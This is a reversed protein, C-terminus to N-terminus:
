LLEALGRERDLRFNPHRAVLQGRGTLSRGPQLLLYGLAGRGRGIEFFDPPPELRKRRKPGFRLLQSPLRFRPSKLLAEDRLFLFHPWCSPDISSRIVAAPRHPPVPLPERM